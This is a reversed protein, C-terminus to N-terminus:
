DKEEYDNMNINFHRSSKDALFKRALKAWRAGNCSAKNELYSWFQWGCVAGAVIHRLDIPLLGPMCMQACHALVVVAYVEALTHVVKGLRWSKVKGADKCAKDPMHAAVRRGLACASWCDLLVFGTCLLMYPVSPSLVMWIAGGLAAIMRLWSQWWECGNLNMMM